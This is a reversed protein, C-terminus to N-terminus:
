LFKFLIFTLILVALLIASLIGYVVYKKSLIHTIKYKYMDPLIDRLYNYGLREKKVYREAFSLFESRIDRNKLMTCGSVSLNEDNSFLERMFGSERINLFMKEFDISKSKNSYYICLWVDLTFCKRSKLCIGRIKSIIIDRHSDPIFSHSAGSLIEATRSFMERDFESSQLMCATQVIHKFDRSVSGNECFMEEYEKIHSLDFQSCKFNKWYCEKAVNLLNSLIESSDKFTQVATEELIKYDMYDCQTYLTFHEIFYDAAADRTEPYDSLPYMSALTASIDSYSTHNKVLYYRAIYKDLFDRGSYKMMYETMSSYAEPNQERLQYFREFVDTDASELLMRADNDYKLKKLADVKTNEIIECLRRDIAEPISLSHKLCYALLYALLEDLLIRNDPNPCDVTLIEVVAAICNNENGTYEGNIKLKFYTCAMLMLKYPVNLLGSCKSFFLELSDFFPKLHENEICYDIIDDSILNETSIKYEGTSLNIYCDYGEASKAFCISKGYAIGKEASSFSIGVRMCYPLRSYIFLMFNRSFSEPDVDDPIVICMTENLSSFYLTYICRLALLFIDKEMNFKTFVADINLSHYVPLESIEELEGNEANPNITDFHFGLVNEPEKLMKYYELVDISYGYFVALSSGDPLPRSVARSLLVCANKEEISIYPLNDLHQGFAEAEKNKCQIFLTVTENDMNKSKAALRLESAKEYTIQAALCIQSISM